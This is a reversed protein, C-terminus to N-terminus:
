FDTMFRTQVIHLPGNNFNWNYPPLLPTVRLNDIDAYTYNLMWRINPTPYWNVGVTYNNEIGGRVGVRAVGPAPPNPDSSVKSNLCLYSYRFGVEWAGWGGELDFNRRPKVRGFAADSLLYKRNEGTLFFSAYVYGGHFTPNSGPLFLNENTAPDFPNYQRSANVFSWIYEGQLSFPGWVLAIEPNILDISNANIRPTGGATTTLPRVDTIHCEPRQRYRLEFQNANRFQHSYGFGLHLLKRGEDQYFPTGAVRATINWDQHNNFGDGYDDAEQFVGFGWWLRKSKLATNHLRIGTNRGPSFVNPLAREMFTIYKSSTLEELSFPEKQHGVRIHGVGPVDKVGLWVDNFKADGGAFDYEAKFQFIKYVTGEIFLRARRFETGFGVLNNGQEAEIQDVLSRKPSSISAFDTQIRGGLKIKNKGDKSQINLGNKWFAKWDPEKKKEIKAVELKKEKEIEALKKKMKEAQEATIVKEERLLDLIAENDVARATGPLFALCFGLIAVLWIKTRIM